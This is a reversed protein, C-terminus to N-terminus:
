NLPILDNVKLYLLFVAQAQLDSCKWLSLFVERECITWLRWKSKPAPNAVADQSATRFEAPSPFEQGVNHFPAPVADVPIFPAPFPCGLIGWGGFLTWRHWSHHLWVPGYGSSGQCPEAASGEVAEEMRRCRKAIRMLFLKLLVSIFCVCKPSTIKKM